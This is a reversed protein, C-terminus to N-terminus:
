RCPVVLRPPSSLACMACTSGLEAPWRPMACTENAFKLLIGNNASPNDIWNVVGQMPVDFTVVSGVMPFMEVSSWPMPNWSPASSWTTAANWATLVDFIAVFRGGTANYEWDSTLTFAASANGTVVRGRLSSVDWRVLTRVVGRGGCAIADDRVHIRTPVARAPIGEDIMDWTTSILTISGSTCPTSPPADVSADADVRVDPMLLGTKAGCGSALLM